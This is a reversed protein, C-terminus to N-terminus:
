RVFRIKRTNLLEIPVGKWVWFVWKDAWLCTDCALFGVVIIVSVVVILLIGVLNKFDALPQIFFSAFALRVQTTDSRVRICIATIEDLSKWTHRTPVDRSYRRSWGLGKSANKGNGGYCQSRESNEKVLLYFVLITERFSEAGGLCLQSLCLLMQLTTKQTCIDHRM